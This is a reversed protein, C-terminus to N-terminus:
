FSIEMNGWTEKGKYRFSLSKLNQDVIVRSQMSSMYGAGQYLHLKRKTGNKLIAYGDIAGTPINISTTKGKLVYVLTSANNQTSIIRTTEGMQNLVMGRGDGPLNLNSKFGNIFTFGKVKNNMLVGGNHADDPGHQDRTYKNNGNIVVDLYGDQNVDISQMGNIPGIQSEFPLSSITFVGGNNVLLLHAFENAFMQNDNLKEGFIEEMTQGM